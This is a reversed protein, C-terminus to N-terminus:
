FWLDQYLMRMAAAEKPWPEVFEEFYQPWDDNWQFTCFSIAYEWYSPYWGAAEWDIIAVEVSDVTKKFLINKRQLDSHSLVPSHVGLMTDLHRGYFKAKATIHDVAGSDVMRLRRVLAAHVDSNNQFPGCIEKNGQQDWFLHHPLKASGVGGYYGPPPISRLHDIGIKIKACIASKDDNTLTPWASELDLGHIREMVLCLHGTSPMRWMAFLRPVTLSENPFRELFLLTQGEIEEVGRGHKVIFHEGVAVVRHHSVDERLVVPSQLFDREKPLPAPLRSPPRLFPIRAPTWDEAM